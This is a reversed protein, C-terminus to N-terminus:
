WRSPDNPWRDFPDDVGDGDRDQPNTRQPMGISQADRALRAQWAAHTDTGSEAVIDGLPISRGGRYFYRVHRSATKGARLSIQRVSQASDFWEPMWHQAAAPRAPAALLIAAIALLLTLATVEASRTRISM